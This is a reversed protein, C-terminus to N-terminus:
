KNSESPKIDPGNYLSFTCLQLQKKKEEALYHYQRIIEKCDLKKNSPIKLCELYGEYAEEFRIKTSLSEDM